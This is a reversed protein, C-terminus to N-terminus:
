VGLDTQMTDFNVIQKILLKGQLLGKQSVM